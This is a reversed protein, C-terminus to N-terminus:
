VEQSRGDESFINVLYIRLVIKRDHLGSSSLFYFESFNSWTMYNGEQLVVEPWFLSVHFVCIQSLMKQDHLANCSKLANGFVIKGDQIKQTGMTFHGRKPGGKQGWFGGSFTQMPGKQANKGAFHPLDVKKQPGWM